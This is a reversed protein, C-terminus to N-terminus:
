KFLDDKDRTDRVHYSMTGGNLYHVRNAADDMAPWDSEPIFKGTPDYHGVTWLGPETEIYIYM